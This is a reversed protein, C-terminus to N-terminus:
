GDGEEDGALRNRKCRGKENGRFAEIVVRQDGNGARLARRMRAGDDPALIEGGGDDVRKHTQAVRFIQFPRFLFRSGGFRLHRCAGFFRFRFFLSVVDGGSGCEFFFHALPDLLHRMVEVARFAVDETKAAQAFHLLRQQHTEGALAVGPM